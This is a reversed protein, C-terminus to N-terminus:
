GRAVALFAEARERDKQARGHAGSGEECAALYVQDGHVAPSGHGRGPVPVKWLVNEEASWTLPPKPGDGASGDRRPGRWWPWDNDSVALTDDQPPASASVSVLAFLLLGTLRSHIM